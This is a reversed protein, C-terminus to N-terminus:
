RIAPAGFDAAGHQRASRHPRPGVAARDAYNFTAALVQEPAFDVELRRGEGRVLDYFLVEGVPEGGRVDSSGGVVFVGGATRSFVSVAGFRPAVEFGVEVGPDVDFGGDFAIVTGSVATGDSRM